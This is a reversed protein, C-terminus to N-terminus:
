SKACTNEKKKEECVVLPSVTIKNEPKDTNQSAESIPQCEMPWSGGTSTIISSSVGDSRSVTNEYHLKQKKKQKFPM